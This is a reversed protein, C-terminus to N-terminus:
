ARFLRLTNVCHSRDSTRDGRSVLDFGDAHGGYVTYIM